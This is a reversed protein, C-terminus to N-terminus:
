EPIADLYGQRDLDALRTFYSQRADAESNFKYTQLRMTQGATGWRVKVKSRELSLQVVNEAAGDRRTFARTEFVVADDHKSKEREKEAYALRLAILHV